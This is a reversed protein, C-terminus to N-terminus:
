WDKQTRRTESPQKGLEDSGGSDDGAKQERGMETIRRAAKITKESIGVVVWAEPKFDLALDSNALPSEL